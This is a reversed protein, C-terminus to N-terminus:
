ASASIPLNVNVYATNIRGRADNANLGVTKNSVILETRHFSGILGSVSDM